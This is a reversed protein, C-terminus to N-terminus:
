ESMPPAPVRFRWTERPGLRLGCWRERRWEVTMTSPPHSAWQESVHLLSFGGGSGVWGPSGRPVDMTVQIDRAIGPGVYHMYLAEDDAGLKWVDHKDFEDTGSM